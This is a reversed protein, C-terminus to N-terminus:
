SSHKIGNVTQEITQVLNPVNFPKTIYEKFGAKIGAEVNNPMAEATIAIVPINKTKDNEQLQKLAEVGNMGPLKIDMLILDLKKTKALDLGLEANYATLLKLNKINGIITEMLRLNEPNDEIYLVTRTNKDENNQEARLTGQGVVATNIHFEAQKDSIPIDLWFTSGKGVKSKFDVKGGMLEILQKTIVLGIGTGEITGGELGLREFPHFLKTQNDESIGAGTDAVNIRLFQNPMEQCSLTIKGHESNYKIANSLINVLAQTLRIGDAWLIPLENGEIQDIIEIGIDAARSRVLDLSERIIDRVRVNELNLSLKGLEIKSLELVDNILELLHNGGKLIHSVNFNQSESLPEETDLQLLQAYGMVANLPTRLEHSM